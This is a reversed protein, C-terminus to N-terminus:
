KMKKKAKDVETKMYRRIEVAVSSGYERCLKQFEEYVKENVNIQIKKM